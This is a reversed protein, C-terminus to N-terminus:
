SQQKKEYLREFYEYLPKCTTTLANRSAVTMLPTITHFCFDVIMKLVTLITFNQQDTTFNQQDIAKRKM